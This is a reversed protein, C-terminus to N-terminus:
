IVKVLGRGSATTNRVLLLVLAAALLPLPLLLRRLPVLPVGLFLAGERGRNKGRLSVPPHLPPHLLLMPQLM